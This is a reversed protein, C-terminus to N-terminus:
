DVVSLSFLGRLGGGLDERGYYIGLRASMGWLYALEFAQQLEAGITWPIDGFGSLGDFYGAQALFSLSLREYFLPLGFSRAVDAIKHTTRIEAVSARDRLFHNPPYGLLLLQSTLSLPTSLQGGVSVFANDPKQFGSIAAAHVKLHLVQGKLLRHHLRFEADALVFPSGLKGLRLYQTGGFQFFYGQEPFSLGLDKFETNVQIKAGVGWYFDTGRFNIRTAELHPRFLVHQDEDSGPINLTWKGHLVTYRPEDENIEYADRFLETEWAWSSAGNFYYLRGVPSATNTDYRVTLWYNHLALPDTGSVTAGLQATDLRFLLSPFLNRPALYAFPSYPTPKLDNAEPMTTNKLGQGETKHRAELVTNVTSTPIPKWSPPDFPYRAVDYGRSHASTVYVWRKEPDVAPYFLGGVVQSTRYLRQKGMHYAYVNAVGSRDSSFLVWEGDFTFSPHLNLAGDSVLSRLEGAELMMLDEGGSTANKQTFVIKTGDPSFKPSSLRDYGPPAYLDEYVEFATDTLSLMNRGGSNRVFVINEGNPHVDPDRGRLGFSAAVIRDQKLDYIYLEQSQSHRRFPFLQDYVLFRSSASFSSQYGLSRPITKKHEAHAARTPTHELNTNFKTLDLLNIKAPDEPNEISVALMEGNPSIELGQHVFGDHTLYTLPTLPTKTIARIESTAEEEIHRLTADWLQDFGFGYVDLLHQELRFPIGAGLSDVLERLAGPKQRELERM